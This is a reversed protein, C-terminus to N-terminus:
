IWEALSQQKATVQDILDLKALDERTGNYFVLVNQHMKGIKRNREFQKAVRLALTGVVNQLIIENYLRFGHVQCADITKSVFNTLYGDKDRYDGVVVCAFTNPRMKSLALCMIDAYAKDFDDVSMNSIDAPDKSYVELDGYPPCTLLFDFQKGRWRELTNLSDGVVWQPMYEDEGCLEKAQIKNAEVQEGRLEHGWYIHGLKSAVIGRVSGGAFPDLVTGGKKAFWTYLLECLAPDFISTDSQTAVQVDGTDNMWEQINFARASRGVESKLGQAIWMRKRDQWRGTATNIISFPNDMFREQLGHPNKAM